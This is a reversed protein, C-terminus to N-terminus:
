ESIRLGTSAALLTLTSEPEPLLYWISFAQQPSITMAAYDGTTACRVFRLPNDEERRPSPGYRQASKYALSMMRRQRDLTPIKLASAGPGRAIHRHLDRYSLLEPTRDISVGDRTLIRSSTNGSAGTGGAM